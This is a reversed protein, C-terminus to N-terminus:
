TVQGFAAFAKYLGDNTIESDLDGVFIHYHDTIIVYFWFVNILLDLEWVSVIFKVSPCDKYWVCLNDGQLMTLKGLLKYTDMKLFGLGFFEFALSQWNQMLTGLPTIFCLVVLEDVFCM